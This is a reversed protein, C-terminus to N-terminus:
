PSRDVSPSCLCEPAAALFAAIGLLPSSPSHRLRSARAQESLASLARQRLLDMLLWPRQRTDPEAFVASHALSGRNFLFGPHPLFAETESHATSQRYSDPVVRDCSRSIGPRDSREH